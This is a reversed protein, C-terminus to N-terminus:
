TVLFARTLQFWFWQGYYWSVLRLSIGDEIFSARDEVVKRKTFHHLVLMFFLFQWSQLGSVYNVM